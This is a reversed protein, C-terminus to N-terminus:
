GGGVMQVIEIKCNERIRKEEFQAKRVIEDDMLLAVRRGTLELSELLEGITSDSKAEHPEGNLIINM